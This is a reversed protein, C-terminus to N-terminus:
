KKKKKLFVFVVVFFVDRQRHFEVEMGRCSYRCGGASFVALWKLGFSALLFLAEEEQQWCRGNGCVVPPAPPRRLM